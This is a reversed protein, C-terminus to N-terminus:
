VGGGGKSSDSLVRLVTDMVVTYEAECLFSTPTPTYTSVSDIRWMNKITM